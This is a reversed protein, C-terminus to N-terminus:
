ALPRHVNWLRSKCMAGGGPREDLNSAGIHCGVGDGGTDGHEAGVKLVWDYAQNETCGEVGFYANDAM